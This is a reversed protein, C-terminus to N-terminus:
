GPDGWAEVLLKRQEPTARYYDEYMDQTWKSRKGKPAQRSTRQQSRIYHAIALAMVLDDHEGEEAQARWREDYVFTLMEGLTEFDTICELSNLAVDKLMDIILPRTRSDTRFGFAKQLQGTYTDVRERTYLNRYGLEELKLEPYTSYNVEIGILAENYYMGLCYMQKAYMREDFRHHLVAVQTGTRNDLVQGVFMDTGTGATDGGIVYPVGEEPKVRIRIPGDKRRVWEYSEIGGAANEKIRFIGREWKDQRVLERRLVISQKDFVCTGTAIFAEDPTSPYEQRFLDIDGGCNNEICWRRWALQEDDLGFAQSLAKEEETREFGPPPTRRYEDMEFWAFFVPIFGEIGNKQNEVATDWLQKFEDYGKATSEIVVLTGPRDPVAQMLGLLTARKDGPWWAFESLHLARLTSGRGIGTGGATAVRINSGLGPTKGRYKTPTDFVLENANSARQMPKLQEPLYEYFRRSMQFLKRTADDTHAVIMCETHFATVALWFIIGEVLTSFGMQRAKLIIIRVPKGAKWQERIVAYLRMQPKNLLFPIVNGDKDRIKLFQQIFLLCNLLCQIADM